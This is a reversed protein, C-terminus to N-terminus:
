AALDKDCAAADRVPDVTDGWVGLERKRVPHRASRVLTGAPGRGVARTLPVLGLTALPALLLAAATGLAWGGIVDTPYNVGLFVRLFGECAALGIGLLGARRHVMFLGVGIAMALTSHDNVFSFRSTGRILVYLNQQGDFPRPRQVVQRIPVSLGVAILAALASWVVGAVAAPADDGQRRAVRWWCWLVLAVSAAPMGYEGLLRALHDLWGPALRALGNLKVLLGVDPNSGDFALEEM